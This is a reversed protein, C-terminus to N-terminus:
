LASFQRDYERIRAELARPDDARLILGPVFPDASKWVIHPDDFRSLDAPGHKSVTTVIGAYGQRPRSVQYADLAELRAWEHHLSIGTAEEIVWPIRAAALRSAGELFYVEHDAAGVIFEIHTIGQEFGFGTIIRRNAELLRLALDSDQELTYSVFNGGKVVDLLPLGYRSAIAFAPRGGQTISDVHFVDGAIYQEILYRDAQDGLSDIARWASDRDDLRTINSAGLGDRIKLLYPPAIEAFMRGVAARDSVPAFHPVRVDCSLGKLRMALKDRFLNAQWAPQGPIGLDERIAAAVEVDRELLAVVRDLRERAALERAVHMVGTRDGMNWVTVLGALGEPWAAEREADETLVYVRCGLKLAEQIFQRGARLRAICLLTRDSRPATVHDTM